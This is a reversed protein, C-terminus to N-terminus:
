IRCSIQCIGTTVKLIKKVENKNLIKPLKKEQKPRDLAIDLELKSHLVFKYFVKIASIAQNVYSISCEQADLLFFLYEKIESINTQRLDKNFYDLYRGIQSIYVKITKNSYGRIKMEKHFHDLCIKKKLGRGIRVKEEKFLELLYKFSKSNYPITWFQGQINYYRGYVRKIKEVRSESYSFNVKIKNESFIGIDITM